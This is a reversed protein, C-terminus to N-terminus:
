KSLNPHTDKSKFGCGRSASSCKAAVTSVKAKSVKVQMKGGKQSGDGSSAQLQTEFQVHCLTSRRRGHKKTMTVTSTFSLISLTGSGSSELLREEKLAQSMRENWFLDRLGTPIEQGDQRAM